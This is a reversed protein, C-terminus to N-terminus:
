MTLSVEGLVKTGIGPGPFPHRYVWRAELSISEGLKRVEDKFFSVKSARITESENKECDVLM